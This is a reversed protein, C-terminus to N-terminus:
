LITEGTVKVPLMVGFGNVYVAVASLLTNSPFVLAVTVTLAIVPTTDGSTTVIVPVPVKAEEAM